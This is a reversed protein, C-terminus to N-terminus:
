GTRVARLRWSIAELSPMPIQVPRTAGAELTMPTWSRASGPIRVGARDYWEVAYSFRVTSSSKNRLGFELLGSGASGSTRVDLTELDDELDPDGQLEIMPDPDRPANNAADASRCAQLPLPLLLTAALKKM